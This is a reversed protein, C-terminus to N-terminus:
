SEAYFGAEVNDAKNKTIIYGQHELVAKCFLMFRQDSYPGVMRNITSSIIRVNDKTYGRNNDIRDLSPIYFGGCFLMEDDDDSLKFRIGTIECCFDHSKARNYLWGETLDFELGRRTSRDKAGKLLSKIRGKWTRKNKRRIDRICLKCTWKHSDFKDAPGRWDCRSCRREDDPCEICSNSRACKFEAVEPGRKCLKCTKDLDDTLIEM